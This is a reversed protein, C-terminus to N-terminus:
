SFSASLNWSVKFQAVQHVSLILQLFLYESYYLLNHRFFWFYTLFYSLLIECLLYWYWYHVYWPLNLIFFIPISLIILHEDVPTYQCIACTLQSKRILHVCYFLFFFLYLRITRHFVIWTYSWRCFGLKLLIPHFSFYLGNYSIITSLKV